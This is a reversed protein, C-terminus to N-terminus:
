RQPLSFTRRYCRMYGTFGQVKPFSARMFNECKYRCLALSIPSCPTRAPLPHSPNCASGWGCARETSFHHFSSGYWFFDPIRFIGEWEGSQCRDPTVVCCFLFHVRGGGRRLCQDKHEEDYIWDSFLPCKSVEAMDTWTEGVSCRENWSCRLATPCTISEQLGRHRPLYRKGAEAALSTSM